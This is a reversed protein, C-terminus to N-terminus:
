TYIAKKLASDQHEAELSDQHMKTHRTENAAAQSDYQQLLTHQAEHEKGLHVLDAEAQLQRCLLTIHDSTNARRHNVTDIRLM